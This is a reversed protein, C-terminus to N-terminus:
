ILGVDLLENLQKHLESLEKSTMRYPAQAPTDSGSLLEIRHDIDRRPMFVM